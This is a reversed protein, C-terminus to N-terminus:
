KGWDFGARYRVNPHKQKAQIQALQRASLTQKELTGSEDTWRDYMTNSKAGKGPKASAGLAKNSKKISAKSTKSVKNINQLRAQEASSITKGKPAKVTVNSSVKVSKATGPKTGKGPVIRGASGAGGRPAGGGTEGRNSSTQKKPTIAM